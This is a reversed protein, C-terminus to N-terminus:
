PGGTPTRPRPTEHSLAHRWRHIDRAVARVRRPEPSGAAVDDVRAALSAPDDDLGRARSLAALRRLRETEQLEPSVSCARAADDLMLRLYRRLGEGAHGAVTLLEATHAILTEKGPPVRPPAPQPRGFRGVGAWVVLLLLALAHFTVLVLPFSLLEAWLSPQYEFGHLVEDVVVREASLHEAFLLHALAANDGRGLGANNLLDPDSVVCVGSDHRAVLVGVDTSVLPDMGDLGWALLQPRELTPELAEWPTEWPGELTADLRVVADRVPASGLSTAAGLAEEVDEEPRLTVRVVHGPRVPDPAASWKPLVVVVESGAELADAVLSTTAQRESAAPPEALLLARGPGLRTATASRSVEVPVGGEELLKALARHGVASRSFSDAGASRAEFLDDGLLALVLATVVSLGAVGMLVWFTRRRFTDAASPVVERQVRANM